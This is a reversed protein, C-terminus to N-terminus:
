KTPNRLSREERDTFSIEPKVSITKGCLEQKKGEQRFFFRNTTKTWFVLTIARDTGTSTQYTCMSLHPQACIANKKEGKKQFISEGGMPRNMGM